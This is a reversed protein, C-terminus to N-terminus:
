HCPAKRMSIEQFLQGVRRVRGVVKEALQSAGWRAKCTAFCGARCAAFGQLDRLGGQLESRESKFKITYHM